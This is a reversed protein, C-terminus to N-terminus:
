ERVSSHSNDKTNIIVSDFQIITLLFNNIVTQQSIDGLSHATTTFKSFLVYEKDDKIRLWSEINTKTAIPRNGGNRISIFMKYPLPPISEIFAAGIIDKKLSSPVNIYDELEIFLKIDTDYKPDNIDLGIFEFSDSAQKGIVSTTSVILTLCFFLTKLYSKFSM